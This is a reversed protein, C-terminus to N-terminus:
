NFVAERCSVHCHVDLFGLFDHPLWARVLNNHESGVPASFLHFIGGCVLDGTVVLCVCIQGDAPCLM